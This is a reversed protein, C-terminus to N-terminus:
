KLVFNLTDGGELIPTSMVLITDPQQTLPNTGIYFVHAMGSVMEPSTYIMSFGGWYSNVKLNDFFAVTASPESQFSLELPESEEMKNNFFTVKAPM